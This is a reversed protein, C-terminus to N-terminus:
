PRANVWEAGDNFVEKKWIPVRKKLEEIIYRCGDFAAARHPSGVAVVVAAEGIALAGVRHHVMASAIGFREVCEDVIALMEREAMPAYAEYELRVVADGPKASSSNRATGIFLAIAGSGADGASAICAATDLPLDVIRCEIM